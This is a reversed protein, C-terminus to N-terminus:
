AGDLTAGCHGCDDSDVPNPAGCHECNRREAQTEDDFVGSYGALALTTVVICAAVLWGIPGLFLLGVAAVAAVGLLTWVVVSDPDVM